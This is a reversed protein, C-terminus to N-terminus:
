KASTAEGPLNDPKFNVKWRRSVTRKSSTDKWFRQLMVAAALSAMTVSWHRAFCRRSLNGNVVSSTALAAVGDYGNQM